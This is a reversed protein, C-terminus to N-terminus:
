NKKGITLSTKDQSGLKKEEFQSSEIFPLKKLAYRTNTVVALSSSKELQHGKKCLSHLIQPISRSFPPDLICGTYMNLQRHPCHFTRCIYGFFNLLIDYKNESKKVTHITRIVTNLEQCGCYIQQVQRLVIYKALTIFACKGLTRTGLNIRLKLSMPCLQGM